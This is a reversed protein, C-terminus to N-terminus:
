AEVRNRGKQKAEYLKADVRRLVAQETEGPLLQAVGFSATVKGVARDLSRMMFSKTAISERIKNAIGIADALQTKPLIIGFEEGGYRNIRAGNGAGDKLLSAFIRLVDDGTLHGFKDNLAKFHDLDCLILSIPQASKAAQGVADALDKDFARRNGLETLPDRMTSIQVIRLDSSLKEIATANSRLQTNMVDIGNRARENEAVLLSVITRIQEPTPLSLLRAEAERLAELYGESQASGERAIALARKVEEDFSSVRQAFPADAPKTGLDLLAPTYLKIAIAASGAIAIMTILLGALGSANFHMAGAGSGLDPHAGIVLLSDASNIIGAIVIATLLSVVIYVFSRSPGQPIRIMM